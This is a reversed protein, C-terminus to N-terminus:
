KKFIFKDPNAIKLSIKEINWPYVPGVQLSSIFSHLVDTQPGPVHKLWPPDKLQWHGTPNSPCCHWFALINLM